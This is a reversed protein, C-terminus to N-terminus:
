RDRSTGARGLGRGAGWRAAARGTGRVAPGPGGARRHQRRRHRDPGDGRRVRDGRRRGRGALGRRVRRDRVCRRPACGVPRSGAGDVGGAPCLQWRAPAPGGSLHAGVGLPCIATMALGCWPASDETFIAPRGALDMDERPQACSARASTPLTQRVPRHRSGTGYVLPIVRTILDPNRCWGTTVPGYAVRRAPEGSTVAPAPIPPRPRLWGCSYGRVMAPHRRAGPLVPAQPCSPNRVASRIATGKLGEM